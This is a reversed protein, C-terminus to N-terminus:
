VGVTKRKKGFLEPFEGSLQRKYTPVMLLYAAELEERTELGATLLCHAVFAHPQNFGQNDRKIAGDCVGLMFNFAARIASSLEETMEPVPNKAKAKLREHIRCAKVKAQAKTLEAEAATRDAAFKDNREKLASMRTAYQEETEAEVKTPTAEPITASLTKEVSSRILTMKADLLRLVHKDLPHDSVMRVIEVKDSEQGIRCIRDEAQLNNAPTWDLDVFLAKWARTLTLGVGGAAITLGVGKLKGDQFSRVINQRDEPKTDGTIVAWGERGALSDIPDRHASFVVLPCDQEECEEVFEFMADVRSAALEARIASFQEFPPLDDSAEMAGGWEEYASDLRKRLSAPLDNVTITSYTKSPLDPLVEARTRRLMVRRLLEPVVPKPSGWQIGFRSEYANFLGMFRGWSGFVERSMDLSDLVGFLDPPRNLLPTGTLAWVKSVIRTLEKVRQSRKAKYNKVKHAEDCILVVGKAAERDATPVNAPRYPDGKKRAPPTLWEPLVDYNVIVVQGETPWQWANKGNVVIPTLDPRWKLCEDRWNYKVCAPVLCLARAGKPLARLTQVTKGCGMDDGLLARDRLSLWQVGHVQFPYLGGLEAASVAQESQPVDRLSEAVELKLKDALELLRIRDAMATSVTWCRSEGDFKAGPMAQILPLNAPEYPTIVRGDATLQRKTPEAPAIRQPVCDRCWTVWNGNVKHVFGEGVAVGNYVAKDCNRNNCRSPYKNPFM